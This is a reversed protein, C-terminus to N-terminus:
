GIKATGSKGWAEFLEDFTFTRRSLWGRGKQLLNKNIPPNFVLRPMGLFAITRQTQLNWKWATPLGRLMEHHKRLWWRGRQRTAATLFSRWTTTVEVAEIRSVYSLGSFIGPHHRAIRQGFHPAFYLARSITGGGSELRCGYIQCKLFTNLTIEDNLERAYIEVSDRSRILQHEQMHQILERTLHRIYPKGTSHILGELFEAVENWTRYSLKASPQELKPISDTFLYKRDAHYRRVQQRPDVWSTKAEVVLRELPTDVVIDARDKEYDAEIGVSSIPKSLKFFPEWHDPDHAILYGLMATIRTERLSSGLSGLLSRVPVRGRM